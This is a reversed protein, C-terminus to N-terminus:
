ISLALLRGIQMAERNGSFPSKALNVRGLSAGIRVQDFGSKEPVV